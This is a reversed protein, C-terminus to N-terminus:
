RLFSLRSRGSGRYRTGKKRSERWRGLTRVLNQQYRVLRGEEGGREEEEVEEELKDERLPKTGDEREGRKPEDPEHSKPSVGIRISPEVPEVEGDHTIQCLLPNTLLSGRRRETEKKNTQKNKFNKQHTPLTPPHKYVDNDVTCTMQSEVGQPDEIDSFYGRWASSPM